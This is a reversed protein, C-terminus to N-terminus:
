LDCEARTLAAELAKNWPHGPDLPMGNVDCGMRVNHGMDRATKRSHCEHCLPVLNVLENNSPNNDRHDVDTAITLAGQQTCHRCMPECALVYARLKRWAAGDLALTRGNSEQKDKLSRFLAPERQQNYM